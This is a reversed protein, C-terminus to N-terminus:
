YIDEMIEDDSLYCAPDEEWFDGTVCEARTRFNGNCQNLWKCSRCRGKLLPKRNRLNQLILHEEQTWIDSFKKEKVNGFNHQWTFQDCHVNGYFDINAFASGSRNGGSISLLELIRDAKSKYNQIANLYVYAGDAHNDVTLIEVKPGFEIAKRIILDMAERTEEKSIDENVMENGRGSYVLHYFCVRPIKEERILYFIEELQDYNHKNITFRLGVRQNIDICNRIGKLASDFAGKVGRFSDHREGIGDLSVGVYGVGINKINKCVDKTLLTGNTSITSRIGLNSNYKLLDFFDKRILPEGGSFLIVPVNFEKLDYLMDKAEKLTLEGHHSKEDANAYCHRCKLNCTKTCNWVVVPGKGDSVGHKQSSAGKVYRLSDGFNDSDCLLKTISIM